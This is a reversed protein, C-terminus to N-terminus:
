LLGEVKLRAVDDDGLMDLLEAKADFKSLDSLTTEQLDGLEIKGVKVANQIMFADSQKRFAEVEKLVVAAEDATAEGVVKVFSASMVDGLKQWDVEVRSRDTISFSELAGDAHLDYLYKPEAEDVKCPVMSGVATVNGRTSCNHEHGIIVQKFTDAQQATLNLSHDKDVAFGNDYNCHTILTDSQEAAWLIAEDFKEQNAMHPVLACGFMVRPEDIVGLNKIGLCGLFALSSMQSRDKVQDHNGKLVFVDQKCCDLAQKVRLVVSYPVIGNDFLDGVILVPQTAISLIDVFIGVQWDEFAKLSEPTVGSKRRLGFHPDGLITISM